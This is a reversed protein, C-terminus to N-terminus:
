CNNDCRSTLLVYIINLYEDIDKPNCTRESAVRKNSFVVSSIITRSFFLSSLHLTNLILVYSSIPDKTADSRM